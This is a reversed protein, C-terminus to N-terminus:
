FVLTVFPNEIFPPEPPPILNDLDNDDQDAFPQAFPNIKPEINQDEALYDEPLNHTPLFRGLPDRRRHM